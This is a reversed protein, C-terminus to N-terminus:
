LEYQWVESVAWGNDKNMVRGKRAENRIYIAEKIKRRRWDRECDIDVVTAAEWEIAHRIDHAHEM